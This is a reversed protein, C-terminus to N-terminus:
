NTVAVIAARQTDESTLQILTNTGPHAGRIQLAWAYALLFLGNAAGCHGIYTSTYHKQYNGTMDVRLIRAWALMSEAFFYEEGGLDTLHLNIDQADIASDRLANQTANTLGDALSNRGSILSRDEHEISASLISLAAYKSYNEKNSLVIASAAEGPIFGESQTDCLIRKNKLGCQIRKLNLWSDVGVLIVARSIQEGAQQEYLWKQSKLMAAASATEGLPLHIHYLHEEPILTQSYEVMQNYLGDYDILNPQDESPSIFMLCYEQHDALNIYSLAENMALCAWQYQTDSGGVIEDDSNKQFGTIKAGIIDENGGDIFSTDNFNDIEARIAPMTAALSLGVSTVAGAGIITIKQESM